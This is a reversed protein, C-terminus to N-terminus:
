TIETIGILVPAMTNNITNETNWFSEGAPRLSSSLELYSTTIVETLRGPKKPDRLTQFYLFINALCPRQKETFERPIPVAFKTTDDLLRQRLEHRGISPPGVLILPRRQNSQPYYLAMEEYPPAEGGGGAGGCKFPSNQRRRKNTKRACLLSAASSKRSSFKLM